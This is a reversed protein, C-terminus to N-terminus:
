FIFKQSNALYPIWHCGPIDGCSVYRSQVMVICYHLHLHCFRGPTLLGPHSADYMGAINVVVSATGTDGGVTAQCTYQGAHSQRLPNITLTYPSTSSVTFDGGTVIPTSSGPGMWQVSPTGTVESAVSFNCTLTYPQGLTPNGGITISVLM